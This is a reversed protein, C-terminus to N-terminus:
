SDRDSDGGSADMVQIKVDVQLKSMSLVAAAGAVLGLLIFFVGGIPIIWHLLASELDSIFVTMGHCSYATVHHTEPDPTRPNSCITTLLFAWAAFPLLPCAICLAFLLKSRLPIQRKV